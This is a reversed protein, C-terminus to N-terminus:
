NLIAEIRALNKHARGAVDRDSYQLDAADPDPFKDAALQYMKKADDFEGLSEYAKGARIAYTSAVRKLEASSAAKQYYSAAADMDELQANADGLGGYAVAQVNPDTTKFASLYDIADDYNGLNLNCIGAYYKAAKGAKTGKFEDMIDYFGYTNGNGDLALQFSDAEFWYQAKYIQKSAEAEKPGLIFKKYGVMGAVVLLIVGLVGLVLNQNQEFFTEFKNYTEEVQLGEQTGENNTKAM